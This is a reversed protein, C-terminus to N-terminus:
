WSCCNCGKTGIRTEEIGLVDLSLTYKADNLKDERIIELVWVQCEGFDELGLRQEMM